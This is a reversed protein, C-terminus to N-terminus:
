GGPDGVRDSRQLYVLEVFGDRREDALDRHQRQQRALSHREQRRRQLRGDRRDVVDDARQCHCISSTVHGTNDLLWIAVNGTNDRWLIDLNGDGNFDGTGVISWSTPVNGFICTPPSRDRREHDLARHQRYQRALSHEQREGRRDDLQDSRQRRVPELHGDRREDALDGCQWSNDRWLIDAKGDGNFDGTGAITWNTPVNSVFLSDVHDGDREDALDRYQRYQRALAPRGQRRRQLRAARRDVLYHPRQLDAHEILVTGGNMLWLAVNGAPTAGSFTARATATSTM